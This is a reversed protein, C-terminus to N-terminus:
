AQLRSPGDAPNDASPLWHVDLYLGGALVHGAISRAATRVALASSRGRRLVAAVVGSDTLLTARTHFSSPRTRLWVVATKVARIELENITCARYRWPASVITSWRARQLIHPLASRNYTRLLSEQDDVPLPKVM